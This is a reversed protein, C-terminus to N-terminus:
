KWEFTDIMHNIDQIIFDIVPALSDNNPVCNFYLAGRLFHNTSDTIFFQYPSAVGTGEITYTLGYVRQHENIYQKERIDNAKPIHKNIFERSDEIYTDLDDYLAIYTLHLRGNFDPYDINIKIISQVGSEYGYIKSYVPYQFVFPYISDFTKYEKQPLDIRMYGLPKPYYDNGCSATFM